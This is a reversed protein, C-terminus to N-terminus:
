TGIEVQAMEGHKEGLLQNILMLKDLTALGLLDLKVLGVAEGDSMSFHTILEDSSKDSTMPCVNQIKDSYVIIASAHKGTDVKMKELRIAQEFEAAFDGVVKGNEIRAYDSLRDPLYELTWRILSEEGVADMQDSIKDKAPLLETIEKIQSFGISDNFKLAATLASRGQLSSFTVMQAVSEHGYKNQLYSFIEKRKFKPVDIDIDPLQRAEARDTSYFREFLLGYKLPDVKTIGILYSVLCGGASGRGHGRMWGNSDIWRCVDELVLFYASFGSQDIVSIEEKIRDRYVEWGKIKSLGKEKWGARALETLKQTANEFHPLQPEALITYDECEDVIKQTGKYEPMQSWDQPYYDTSYFFRRYQGDMQDYQDINKKTKHCVLIHHDKPPEYEVGESLAVSSVYHVDDVVCTPLNLHKALDRLLERLGVDYKLSYPTIGIVVDGRINRIYSKADEWADQAPVYPIYSETVLNALKGFPAGVVTLVNPTRQTSYADLLEQYEKKNRAIYIEDQRYAIIPKIDKEKCAKFYEVAGSLNDDSLICQNNIDAPKFNSCLSFDTRIFSIM